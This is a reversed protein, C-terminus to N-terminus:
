IPHRLPSHALGSRGAALRHPPHPVPQMSIWVSVLNKVKGLITSAVKEECRTLEEDKLTQLLSLCIQNMVEEPDLRLAKRKVQSYTKAIAPTFLALFFTGLRHYPAGRQYERILCRLISNETAHDKTQARFFDILSFPTPFPSLLPHDQRLQDYIKSFEESSLEHKLQKLDLPPGSKSTPM